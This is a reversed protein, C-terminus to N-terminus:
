APATNFRLWASLAEFEFVHAARLDDVFAFAANAEATIQLGNLALFTYTVAFAVRKNGDM